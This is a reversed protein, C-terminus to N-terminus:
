AMENRKGEEIAMAQQQLKYFIHQTFVNNPADVAGSSFINLTAYGRIALTMIIISILVIKFLSLLISAIEFVETSTIARELSPKGEGLLFVGWIFTICASLIASQCFLIIMVKIVQYLMVFWNLPKRYESKMMEKFVSEKVFIRYHEIKKYGFDSQANKDEVIHLNM